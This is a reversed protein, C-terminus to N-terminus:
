QYDSEAPTIGEWILMYLTPEEWLKEVTVGHQAAQKPEIRQLFSLAQEMEETQM